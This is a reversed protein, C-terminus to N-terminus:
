HSAAHAEPPKRLTEQASVAQWRGNRRVFVDTFAVEVTWGQAKSHVTNIGNAIATDGFVRVTLQTISQTAGPAASHAMAEARDRTQGNTSIDVFGDALIDGLAKRDGNRIADLWRHELAVVQARDTEAQSAQAASAAACALVPCMLLALAPIKM